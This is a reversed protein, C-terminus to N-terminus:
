AMLKARMYDMLFLNYNDANARAQSKSLSTCAADYAHDNTGLIKHTLEHYITGARERPTSASSWAPGLIIRIGSGVHFTGHRKVGGPLPHVWAGAGQMEADTLPKKLWSPYQSIDNPNMKIQLHRHSGDAFTVKRGADSIMDNMAALNRSIELRDQETDAKFYTKMLKDRDGDPIPQVVRASAKALLSCADNIQQRQQETFHYPKTNKKRYEDIKSNYAESDFDFAVQFM